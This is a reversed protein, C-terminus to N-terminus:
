ESVTDAVARGAPFERSNWRRFVADHERVLLSASAPSFIVSCWRLWDFVCICWNLLWKEHLGIIVLTCFIVRAELATM